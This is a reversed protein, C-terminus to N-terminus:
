KRSSWFWQLPSQLWSILLCKSRPLFAIVLRSVMNFLLFMVKSVFNWRTLAIIKRTTLYPHSLQVMFFASHWFILAKLSHHQLLSKFTGQVSLLDLCDIRFSILGLIWQFAPASVSAGISQGGSMFFQNVSFSGSVPFIILVTSRMSLTRGLIFAFFYPLYVVPSFTLQNRTEDRLLLTSNKLSSLMQLFPPPSPTKPLIM